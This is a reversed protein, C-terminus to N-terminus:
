VESPQITTTSENTVHYICFKIKSRRQWNQIHSGVAQDKQSVDPSIKDGCLKCLIPASEIM